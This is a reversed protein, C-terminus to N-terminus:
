IIGRNLFKTPIDVLKCRLYEALNKGLVDYTSSSGVGRDLHDKLLFHVAWINPLEFRFIPKGADDENLLQRIKDVTLLNQLWLYEDANRVFFGVNCDSGKDGSRAHVVYGLPARETAGFSSLNQINTTEYTSQNYLFDETDTPPAISIDLGKAPIHCVHKVKSQPLLAVWYEYYPRPVAQRADVAFTAGPYSQMIVDTVPRFFNATSLAEKDKSQVFIRFDVTAADQNKPDVPCRGHTRFKLCHYKTEDLAHRVQKEIMRSKEEIDLGCLFYHAEAQFGGKATIGVKTTPPPKLYGINSVHVMNEGKQEIKIKDLVAVVDSNYYFPGQIEYLLQAKCTDITVMGDRDKQMTVDFEGNAEIEVIPFGINISNGPLSKFGSFNGGTIYTSCEILHGAVFAHALQKLDDRQWNFYYAACGITLSADAVRGCLVIDAGHKLAEVIGWAGLYCQAYIPEFEWDSLKKGTTLSPFDDGEKLAIKVLDIVEDGGVWAVKLDLGAAKIKDVLVNHLKETDSAGANVAVRIHRSAIYPLAPVIAELFSEEFEDTTGSNNIKAGGRTTMNYESMWDGVIFEIEESKALDAFGFRRDTVSGSASAIRLKQDSISGM